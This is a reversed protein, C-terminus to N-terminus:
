NCSIDINKLQPTTPVGNTYGLDFTTTITFVDEDSRMLEGVLTLSHGFMAPTGDPFKALLETESGYAYPLSGNVLKVGAATADEGTGTATATLQVRFDSGKLTTLQLTTTGNILVFGAYCPHAVVLSMPVDFRFNTSITPVATGGLQAFAPTACWLLLALVCRTMSYIRRSTM